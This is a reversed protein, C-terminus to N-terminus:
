LCRGCPVAVASKTTRRNDIALSRETSRPRIRLADLYPDYTAQGKFRIRTAGVPKAGAPLRKASPPQVRLADYYADYGPEAFGAGAAVAATCLGAVTLVLTHRIQRFM